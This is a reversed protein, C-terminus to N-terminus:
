SATRTTGTPRTAATGTSRRPADSESADGAREGLVDLLRTHSNQSAAGDVCARGDGEGCATERDQFTRRGCAPLYSMPDHCDMVHDLGLAHGVEHAITECVPRTQDRLEASLGTVRRRATSAHGSLSALDGPRGGVLAMIYDGEVPRRDVVEIDYASFLDATCSVIADWRAGSGAFEPIEYQDLGASAVVSSVNRRSDDAGAALTAGERNLYVVQRERTAARPAPLGLAGATSAVQQGASSLLRRGWAADASALTGAAVLAAVGVLALAGVAAHFVGSAVAGVARAFARGRRPPATAPRSASQLGSGRPAPAVNWGGLAAPARSSGRRALVDRETVPARDLAHQM